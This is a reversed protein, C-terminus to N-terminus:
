GEKQFLGVNGIRSLFEVLCVRLVFVQYNYRYYNDLFTVNHLDVHTVRSINYLTDLQKLKLGTDIM